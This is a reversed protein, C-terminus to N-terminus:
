RGGGSMLGRGIREQDQAAYKVGGHTELHGPRAAARGPDIWRIDPRAYHAAQGCDARRRGQGGQVVRCGGGLRGRRRGRGLVEDRVPRLQEPGPEDVVEPSNREVSGTLEM